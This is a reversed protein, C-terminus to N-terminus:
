NTLNVLSFFVLIILGSFVLVGPLFVLNTKGSIVELSSLWWGFGLKLSRLFDVTLSAASTFLLLIGFPRKAIITLQVFVATLFLLLPFVYDLVGPVIGTEPIMSLLFQGGAFMASIMSLIILIDSLLIGFIRGAM